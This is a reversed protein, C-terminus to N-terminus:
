KMPLSKKKEIRKKIFRNTCTKRSINRFLVKTIKSRPLKHCKSSHELKRTWNGHCSWLSPCPRFSSKNGSRGFPVMWINRLCKFPPPNSFPLKQMTKFTLHNWHRRSTKSNELFLSCNSLTRGCFRFLPWIMFYRCGITDKFMLYGM